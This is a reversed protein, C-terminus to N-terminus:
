KSMGKAMLLMRLPIVDEVWESHSQMMREWLRAEATTSDMWGVEAGYSKGACVSM